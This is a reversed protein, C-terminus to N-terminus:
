RVSTYPLLRGKKSFVIQWLSNRKSRFTGACFLLYYTWMRYFREDYKDKLTDWSNVFNNHWTMLTRDYDTGFNHWDEMIFLGEVAKGIQKISPVTCNQFIYKNFWPETYTRTVINGMTHLLFLGDTALCRDVVQMYNHYNRFGVHEFMGLSVIRDYHGSVKRYDMLQINIPLGECTKQALLVQEEAVTIGTVIVGYKEAAYKAFGGWGCGIDLIHMGPELYLKKCVLDLKNEQADDLTTADKWYACTYIMRKDLMKEFLDNGLNYHNVNTFAALGNQLNFIKTLLINAIVQPNRKVVQELNSTLAKTFLQDVQPCDWWKNMYTEGLALTGGSLVSSYFNENNVKIDWLQNGNVTIGAISLLKIVQEKATQSNM